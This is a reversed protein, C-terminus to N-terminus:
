RELLVATELHPTHPFLDVTAARRLRYRPFGRQLMALDRLLAEFNCSIYAMQRPRAALVASIVSAHLGARPPDVVVAEPKAQLLWFRKDALVDETRGIHFEVNAAGNAAANRRALDVSSGESEIGYVRGFRRSLYLGVVGLGCYVDWAAGQPAPVLWAMVTEYLREAQELNPQLFNFPGLQLTFGGVRETLFPEGRLLVLEDPVAVDALKANIGWYVSSIEQHHRVLREAVAEVTDRPGPATVVCVMVQGSARSRRLLLHRFVGQHTRPHYAPQGTEQALRRATRMIGNLPEPLLLCDDIDVIRWFSRAAHYGLTVTGADDSFTFEAKHRYRWPDPAGVRELSVDPAIAQFAHQLPATKLSLQDPYDLHQLRCGGCRGVYPCRPEIRAVNSIDLERRMCPTEPKANVRSVRLSWPLMRLLIFISVARRSCFRGM